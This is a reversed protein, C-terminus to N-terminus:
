QSSSSQNQALHLPRQWCHKTWQQPVSCLPQKHLTGLKLLKATFVPKVIDGAIRRIEADFHTEM